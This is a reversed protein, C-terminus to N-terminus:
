HARPAAQLAAARQRMASSANASMRAHGYRRLFEAAGPDEEFHALAIQILPHAPDLAYARELQLLTAGPLILADAAQRSTVKAGPRVPKEHGVTVYYRAIEGYRTLDSAASRRVDESLRAWEAAPLAEIEGDANLTGSAVIRLLNPFWPPPPELTGLLEWVRATQDDSATVVRTGDSSFEAANIRGAHNSLVNIPAGPAPDLKAEHHGLSRDAEAREIRVADLSRQKLQVSDRHESLIAVLQGNAANWVRASEWSVTLARAGDPSLHASRLSDQHLLAPVILQGTSSNWIQASKDDAATIITTGDSSFQVSRVISKGHGPFGLLMQGTEASWVRISGDYSATAIRMADPSFALDWVHREFGRFTRELGGTSANWLRATKDNSGTVIRGGGPSFRANWVSSEHGLLAVNMEGTAADWVCATGDLSATVVRDGDRSFCASSVGGRHGGLVAIPAGTVADWLRATSDASATLIRGGDPSFESTWVSEQHGTLTAIPRGTQADWVRATRDDSNTLIRSGDGSFQGSWVRHKHGSLIAAPRSTTLDWVRATGDRSGTVLRAGDPSFRAEVVAARHGSLTAILQGSRTEWLKATADDSATVIRRGDPSCEASWLRELHSSLACIFRGTAAEWVRATNDDSSTVIRLGNPSFEASKVRHQHGLLTAIPTGTATDWLRASKDFSSTVIRTGDPSFRASSVEAEHGVLTLILRGTTTEWVRAAGDNSATVVLGGDPSFQVDQLNDRHDALKTTLLGTTTDWVGVTNDLAATAIRTGDPSFRVRRVAGGHGSLTAILRGSTADWLCASRDGSVTSIKSGDPSFAARLVAERHGHLTTILEGTAAVWVRATGDDSATVIRTGSPDFEACNVAAEHGILVVGASHFNVSNGLIIAQEAAVPSEPAYECARALRILAERYRGQAALDNAIVRDSQAAERLKEKLQETAANAAAKEREAVTTQNRAERQGQSARIAQWTSLLTALLLLAAVRLAIRNRRVFKGFRYGATPPTASVPENNLYRQIDLALGSATDYRRTRDKDIAKMVIWDLDSEILPRPKPVAANATRKGSATAALGQARRTSPRPPEVERVVRCMEEHGLSRLWKADFPPRGTLLEYLLIGLSYIDSRTDVDLGSMATQEPSMYAPTGVIQEFHTLLTRDTLRGQIAKAVGFDIVKPVPKEGDLTVLVNSPKIDRHIVGKQHAHNIASCIGVFLELREPITLQREDCFKTIPVARVLEMVFYPRGRNTAGADFVKAINPHDMMALAQREAEFRAIVENSDMGAKIVKLAVRRRVPHFQEAEFVLGFGGEGIREILKYRGIREGVQEPEIRTLVGAWGEGVEADLPSRQMFGEANHSKLLTEIRARLVVDGACVTDLFARRGELPLAAAGAFIDEESQM